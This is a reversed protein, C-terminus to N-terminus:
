RSRRAGRQAERAAAHEEALREEEKKLREIRDLEAETVEYM